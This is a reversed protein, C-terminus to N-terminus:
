TRILDQKRNFCCCRCKFRQKAVFISYLSYNKFKNEVHYITTRLNRM